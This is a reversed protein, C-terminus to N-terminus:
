RVWRSYWPARNKAVKKMAKIGCLFVIGYILLKEFANM